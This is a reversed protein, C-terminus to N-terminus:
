NRWFDKFRTPSVPRMSLGMLQVLAALPFVEVLSPLKHSTATALCFGARIFEATIRSGYSGPRIGNPTHTSVQVAGFARSLERDAIRYGSIAKHSMPMDIAVVDVPSGALLEATALLGTVDAAGGPGNMWTVPRGHGLGIFSSYSPAVAVIHRRKQEYRLVAVASSGRETWAADIGLVVAM